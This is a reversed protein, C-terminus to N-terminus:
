VLLFVLLKLWYFLLYNRVRKLVSAEARSVIGAVYAYGTILNLPSSFKQFVRVVAALEIIQPSGEVFAIDSQWSGTDSDRWVIVSKHTKGSGDTFITM